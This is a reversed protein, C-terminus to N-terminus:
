IGGTAAKIQMKNSIGNSNIAKSRRLAPYIDAKEDVPNLKILMALLLHTNGKDGFVAVSTPPV